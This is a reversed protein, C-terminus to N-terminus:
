SIGGEIYNTEVEWEEWGMCIEREQDAKIQMRARKRERRERQARSSWQKPSLSYSFCLELLCILRLNIRLSLYIFHSGTRGFSHELVDVVSRERFVLSFFDDDNFLDVLRRTGNLTIFGFALRKAEQDVLYISITNSSRM